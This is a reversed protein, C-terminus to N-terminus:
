IRATSNFRWNIYGLTFCSFLFSCLDLYFLNAGKTLMKVMTVALPLAVLILAATTMSHMVHRPEDVEQKFDMPTYPISPDYILVRAFFAVILDEYEGAQKYEERPYTQTAIGPQMRPIAMFEVFEKKQAKVARYTKAVDGSRFSPDDDRMILRYPRVIREIDEPVALGSPNCAVVADVLPVGMSAFSGCALKTVEKGGWGFGVAGIPLHSDEKYRLDYMFRSVQSYNISLNGYFSSLM